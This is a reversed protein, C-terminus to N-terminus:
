QEAATLVKQHDVPHGPLSSSLSLHGGHALRTGRKEKGDRRLLSRRQQGDGGGGGVDAKPADRWHNQFRKQVTRTPGAVREFGRGQAGVGM